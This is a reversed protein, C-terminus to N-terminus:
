EGTMPNLDEDEEMKGILLGAFQQESKQLFAIKANAETVKSELELKLKAADGSGASSTLPSSSSAASAGGTMASILNETGARVKQELDMKSKIHRLRFSIKENSLQTGFKLFDLYVILVDILLNLIFM